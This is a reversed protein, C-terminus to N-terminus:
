RIAEYFAGIHKVYDITQGASKGTVAPLKMSVAPWSVSGAALRRAKQINGPGANYSGYIFDLREQGAPVMPWFRSLSHDYKIGGQINGDPDFPNVGLMKATSPM